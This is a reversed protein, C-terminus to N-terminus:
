KGVGNGLITWTKLPGSSRVSLQLYENKPICCKIGTPVLTPRNGKTMEAVEELGMPDDWPAHENISYLKSLAQMQASFAPLVIDESARFDYGGSGDTARTPLIISSDDAYKSVKEFLRM